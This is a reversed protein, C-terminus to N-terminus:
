KYLERAFCAWMWCVVASVIFTIGVFASTSVGFPLAILTAVGVGGGLACMLTYLIGIVTSKVRVNM